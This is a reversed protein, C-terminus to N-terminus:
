TNWFWFILLTALCFKRIKIRRVRREYDNCDVHDDWKNFVGIARQLEEYRAHEFRAKKLADKNGVKENWWCLHSKRLLAWKKETNWCFVKRHVQDTCDAGSIEMWFLKAFFFFLPVM